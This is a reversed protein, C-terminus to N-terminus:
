PLPSGNDIPSVDHGNYQVSLYENDREYLKLPDEKFGFVLEFWDLEKNVGKRGKSSSLRKSNSM